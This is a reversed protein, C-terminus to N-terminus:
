SQFDVLRRNLEARALIGFFWGSDTPKKRGYGGTNARIGPMVERAHAFDGGTNARTKPRHTTTLLQQAIAVSFLLLGRPGSGYNTDRSDLPALRLPSLRRSRSRM